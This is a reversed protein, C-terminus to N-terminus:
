IIYGIYKGNLDTSKITMCHAKFLTWHGCKLKCTDKLDKVDGQTDKWNIRTFAAM